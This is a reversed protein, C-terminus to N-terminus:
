SSPGEGREEPSLFTQRGITCTRLVLDFSAKRRSLRIMSGAAACCLADHGAAGPMFASLIAALLLPLLATAAGLQCGARQRLLARM